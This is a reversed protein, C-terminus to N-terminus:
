LVRIIGPIIEGNKAVVVNKGIEVGLEEMISYNSLSARSVTTGNLEVPEIIATPALIKGKLSWEIDIIKSLATDLDFKVAYNNKPIKNEM